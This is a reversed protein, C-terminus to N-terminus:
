YSPPTCRFPSEPQPYKLMEITEPFERKLGQSSHVKVLYTEVEEKTSKLDGKPKPNIVKRSFQYPQSLFEGCNKSFEKRNKMINEARKKLRM